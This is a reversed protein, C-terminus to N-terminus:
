NGCAHGRHTGAMQGRTHRGKGHKVVYPDTANAVAQTHIELDDEDDEDEQARRRRGKRKKKKKKKDVNAGNKFSVGGQDEKMVLNKDRAKGSDKKENKNNM